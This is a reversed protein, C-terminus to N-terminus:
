GSCNSRSIVWSSGIADATPLCSRHAAAAAGLRQGPAEVARGIRQRQVRRKSLAARPRVRHHDLRQGPRTQDHVLRRKADFAAPALHADIRQCGASVPHKATQLPGEGATLAFPLSQCQAEGGGGAIVRFFPQQRRRREVHQPRKGGAHAAIRGLLGEGKCQEARDCEIMDVQELIQRLGGLVREVKGVEQEPQGLAQHHDLLAIRRAQDAGGKRSVVFRLFGAGMEASGFPESSKGLSALARQRLDYRCVSRSSASYPAITELIFSWM